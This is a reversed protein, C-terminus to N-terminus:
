SRLINSLFNSLNWSVSSVIWLLSFLVAIAGLGL